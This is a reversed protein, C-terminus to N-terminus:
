PNCRDCWQPEAARQDRAVRVTFACNACGHIDAAILRTASGCHACPLGSEVDVTGFGPSGCEPCGSALRHAMRECLERIAEARAPSRHSRYDPLVTVAASAAMLERLTQELDDVHAFDKVVTMPKTETGQVVVGQEPFGIATAFALADAASSVSRGGQVPFIASTREVIEIGRTTDIFLLLETNEILPGFASEFSGESALGLDTGAIQMGLRAKARAAALPSLTRPIDGAFTGFQDTDVGPTASVTAGLVSRFSESALEHKGHMTAFTVQRGRYPHAFSTM